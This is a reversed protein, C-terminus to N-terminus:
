GRVGKGRDYMLLVSVIVAGNIIQKIAGPVNLATLLAEILMIIITGAVTGAYGGRGGAISTGGIVVAAVSNMQYADGMGLYALSTMGVLMMGAIASFVASMIYVRILVLGSNIGSLYSATVNNGVAYIKRGFTTKRLLLLVALAFFMWVWIMARVGLITGKGMFLFIAPVEGKPTGKCYVLTLTRLINNMALTVILAPIKLCSILFGNACGIVASISLILLVTPLIGAQTNMQSLMVAAFNMMWAVSLDIGGTLIVMTQGMATIGLFSGLVLQSIVYSISFYGPRIACIIVYMLVMIMYIKVVGTDKVRRPTDGKNFDWPMGSM